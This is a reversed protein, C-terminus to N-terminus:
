ILALLSGVAPKEERWTHESRTPFKHADWATAPKCSCGERGAETDRLLLLLLLTDRSSASAVSQRILNVLAKRLYDDLWSRSKEESPARSSVSSM